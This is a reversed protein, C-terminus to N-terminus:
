EPLHVLGSVRQLCLFQQEVVHHIPQMLRSRLQFKTRVAPFNTFHLSPFRREFLGKHEARGSNRSLTAALARVLDEVPEFAVEKTLGAATIRGAKQRLAAQYWRSRQGNYARV